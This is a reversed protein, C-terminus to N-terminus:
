SKRSAKPSAKAAPKKPKAEDGFVRDLNDNIHGEITPKLFALLLGLKAELHVEEKGVDLFGAVGQRKFHIRDGQWEYGM